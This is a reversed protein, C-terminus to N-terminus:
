SRIITKIKEVLDSKSNFRLESNADVIFGDHHGQKIHSLDNAVVFTCDNKAGLSRAVRILKKEDVDTLLKFGILNTSPSVQKILNIIKPTKKLKIIIDDVSSSIKENNDYVNENYKINDETLGNTNLYNYLKRASSVYDVTYDSIAMSHIVWSINKSTLLEIITKKVSETDTTEILEVNQTNKPLVAGKSHVYYIHYDNSLTDTLMAGLTGRGSNTIKRVTDIYESTGGSTIIINEM